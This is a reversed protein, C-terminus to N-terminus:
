FYLNGFLVCMAKPLTKSSVKSIASRGVASPEVDYKEMLSQVVTLSMSVVDEQDEAFAMADQLKFKYSIVFTGM